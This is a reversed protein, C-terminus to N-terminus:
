VKFQFSITFFYFESLLNIYVFFMKMGVDLDGIEGKLPPACLVFCFVLVKTIEQMDKWIINVNLCICSGAWLPDPLSGGSSIVM